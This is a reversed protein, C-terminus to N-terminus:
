SEAPMAVSTFPWMSRLRASPLISFRSASSSREGRGPVTPMPWVRQAVWPLGVSFLAWGCTVSRTPTTWLPMMSFKWSSRSWSIPSPTWNVVSVSVSTTAWRNVRSSSRWRLGSCAIAVTM